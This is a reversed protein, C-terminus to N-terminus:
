KREINEVIPALIKISDNITVGYEDKFYLKLRKNVNDLGLNEYKQIDELMLKVAYGYIRLEIKKDIIVIDIEFEIKENTIEVCHSVIDDIIPLLVLKLIYTNLIDENYNFNCIIGNDFRKNQLFIYNNISDIEDRITIYERGKNIITRLYDGLSLVMESLEEDEELQGSWYISELTNYLFHPNIQKQLASLEAEKKLSDLEIKHLKLKYVDNINKNIKYNMKNFENILVSYEDKSNDILKTEINKNSMALILKEIPNSISKTIIKSLIFAVVAINIVIFVTMLIFKLTTDMLHVYPTINILKWGISDIYGLSLIMYKSNIKVKDIENDLSIKYLLEDYLSKILNNNSSSVLNDEKDILILNSEDESINEICVRDTFEKNLALLMVGVVNDEENLIRKSIIIYPENDSKIEKKSVFCEIDKRSANSLLTSKNSGRIDGKAIPSTYYFHLKDITAIEISEVEKDFGFTANMMIRIQNDISEKETWNLNNYNELGNILYKDQAIKNLSNIYTDFYQTINKVTQNTINDSYNLTNHEMKNFTIISGIVGILLIPIVSVLIFCIWLRKKINIKRLKNIIKYNIVKIM